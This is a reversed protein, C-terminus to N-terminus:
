SLRGRSIFHPAIVDTYALWPGHPFLDPWGTVEYFGAMGAAHYGYGAISAMPGYQGLLSTSVMILDPNLRACAEYDIGLRATAGPAWNEVLM